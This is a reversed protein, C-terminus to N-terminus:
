YGARKDVVNEWEAVPAGELLRRLNRLILDTERRWFSRTVASVHPTLIVNNLRWLAHEPPLPETAFVDLGAGRLKGESLASSLAAEDVLKGRGVNVVLAGPKMRALEAAGILGRTEKTEPAALVVVDSERLLEDLGEPGELVHVRHALSGGGDVPLLDAKGERAASRRRLGIVRAGLSAVRRAVERGIGGYGVIGVTSESLERLPADPDYYPSQWWEARRQGEVAFDLGRGFYLIMALVTEAIPSAHVGASNTFIVPSSLMTPTLSRGVGAAGSHVWRLSAGAELLAEPIGYGFYAEAGEVARLVAPDIRGAGDGSGDTEAEVVVLDWGPPLAARLEEPVWAPMAWVPRRDMMDLVIRPM